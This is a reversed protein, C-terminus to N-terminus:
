GLMLKDHFIQKQCPTYALYTTRTTARAIHQKRIGKDRIQQRMKEREEEMRRHKEKRREEAERLAELREQEAEAEAEKDESTEGDGGIQSGCCRPVPCLACPVVIRPGSRAGSQQNVIRASERIGEDEYLKTKRGTPTHLRNPVIGFLFWLATCFFFSFLRFCILWFLVRLAARARRRRVATTRKEEVAPWHRRRSAPNGNRAGNKNSVYSVM